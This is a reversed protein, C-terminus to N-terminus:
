FREAIPHNIQFPAGGVTYAADLRAHNYLEREELEGASAASLPKLESVQMLEPNSFSSYIYSGGGVMLVLLAMAAAGALAPRFRLSEVFANIHRRIMFPRQLPEGIVPAAPVQEMVRAVFDRSPEPSDNFVGGHRLSDGMAFLTELDSRCSDCEGLHALVTSAQGETLRGDVFGSLLEAYQECRM